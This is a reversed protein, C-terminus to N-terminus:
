FICKRDPTLELRSGSINHPINRREEEEPQNTVPGTKWAGRQGMREHQSPNLFVLDQRPHYSRMIPRSYTDRRAATANMGMRRSRERKEGRKM